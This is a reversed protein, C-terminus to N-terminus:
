AGDLEHVPARRPELAADVVLRGADDGATVQGLHLPGHAHDGVGGADDLHEGADVVLEVEHVGLAGEDVPVNALAHLLPLEGLGALVEGRQLLVVLLDAGLKILTVVAVLTVVVLNSAEDEEHQQQQQQKFGTIQRQTRDTQFMKSKRM